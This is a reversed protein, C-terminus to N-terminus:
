LRKWVARVAYAAFAGTSKILPLKEAKRYVNWRKGASRLKRSSRSGNLIRWDVLVETCGAFRHGNRLLELWLAYDELDYDPRFHHEKMLERRVLVTSCGIVNERLMSDYTVSEPVIYNKRKGSEKRFLTYSAYVLEACRESAKALQRELKEERWLDDCDLLAIWEGRAMEMARNRTYAVGRNRENRFVRIRGDERAYQEAIQASGDESGDDLILLEWERFTQCRVSEISSAVYQEANFLPMVVSIVPATSGQDM